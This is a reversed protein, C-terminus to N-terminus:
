SIKCSSLPGIISNPSSEDRGETETDEGRNEDRMEVDSNQDSNDEAMQTVLASQATECDDEEKWNRLLIPLDPKVVQGIDKVKVNYQIPHHIGYYVRSSPDLDPTGNTMQVCISPKTIGFEGQLLSPTRGESYIVGHEEAKVGRKLTGRKSYTFIPSTMTLM